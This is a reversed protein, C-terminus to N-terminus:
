PKDAPSLRLMVADRFKPTSTLPSAHRLWDRIALATSALSTNDLSRHGDFFL